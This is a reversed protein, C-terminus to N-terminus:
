DSWGLSAKLRQLVRQGIRGAGVTGVVKGELDWARAAIAAIDWQGQLVQPSPPCAPPRVHRACCSSAPELTSPAPGGGDTVHARAFGACCFPQVRPLTTELALLSLSDHSPCSYGQEQSLWSLPVPCGLGSAAQRPAVEFRRWSLVACLGVQQYAPIYNRVLALIQMVVHEAVSVVNCGASPSRTAKRKLQPLATGATGGLSAGVHVWSGAPAGEVLCAAAQSLRAKIGLFAQRKTARLEAGRSCGGRRAGTVEAVTLGADRAALLDM